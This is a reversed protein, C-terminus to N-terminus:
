LRDHAGRILCFLVSIYVYTSGVAICLAICLADNIIIIMGERRLTDKMLKKVIRRKGRSETRRKLERGSSM